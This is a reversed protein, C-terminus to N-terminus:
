KGRRLKLLFRFVPEAYVALLIAVFCKKSVFGYLKSFNVQKLEDILQKHLVENEEAAEYYWKLLIVASNYVDGYANPELEPYNEKVDEYMRKSLILWDLNKATFSGHTVSDDNQYYNYLAEPVVCVTNAQKIAEYAFYRDETFKKTEDFHLGAIVKRRFIKSWLGMGIYNNDVLARLAEVSSYKESFGCYALVTKNKHIEKHGCCVIDAQEREAAQLMTQFMNPDCTDDVDAFGIFDGKAVALGANRASSVGGNVKNVVKVESHKQVARELIDLSGDASGDNVFIIEMSKETQNLISELCRSIYKEGNYVPVIVSIKM